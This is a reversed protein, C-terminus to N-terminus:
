WSAWTKAGQLGTSITFDVTKRKNSHHKLTIRKKSASFVHVGLDRSLKCSICAQGSWAQLALPDGLGREEGARPVAGEQNM